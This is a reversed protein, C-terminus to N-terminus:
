PRFDMTHTIRLFRSMAGSGGLTTNLDNSKTMFCMNNYPLSTQPCRLAPKSDILLTMNLYQLRKSFTLVVVLLMMICPCHPM